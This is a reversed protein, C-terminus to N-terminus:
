DSSDVEYSEGCASCTYLHLCRGINKETFKHDCRRWDFYRVEEDRYSRFVLVGFGGDIYSSHGVYYLIVTAHGERGDKRPAKMGGCWAECKFSYSSRWGWFDKEEVFKLNPVHALQRPEWFKEDAPKGLARLFKEKEADITEPKYSGIMNILM